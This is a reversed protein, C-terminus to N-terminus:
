LGMSEFKTGPHRLNEVGFPRFKPNNENRQVSLVYSREDALM